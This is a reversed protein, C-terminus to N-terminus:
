EDEEINKEVHNRDITNLVWCISSEIPHKKFDLSGGRRRKWKGMRSSATEDPKGNFLTNLLQDLSILVNWLYQKIGKWTIM